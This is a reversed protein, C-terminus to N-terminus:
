NAILDQINQWGYAIEQFKSGDFYVLKQEIEQGGLSRYFKCAPNDALVWVLISDLGLQSLRRAITRTLNRGLGKRQYAELIYLAYIEGKYVPHASRQTGGDVFGIIEGEFEAVYIFHDTIETMSAELMKKWRDCRKAYSQREIYATPLIGSYTTKWADVHVQSIAKADQLRAERIIM